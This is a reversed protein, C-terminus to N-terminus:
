GYRYPYHDLNFQETVGAGPLECWLSGGLYNERPERQFNSGLDVTISQPDLYDSSWRTSANGDVANSGTFTTGPEVSTTTVPRNLALNLVTTTVTVALTRVPGAGCSNNARVSINGSSGATTTISTSSTSGSWGSPLTWTYSTAGSVAPVSYTQSSGAAVSTNGSITGPQAPLTCGGTGYVELEFISYGWQSNRATGYIRVYRGAGSLGTLDNVTTNNGTVSGISSWNSADSSVQVQYATAYAAEWTIRVRNVTYSSGLDVYIWQPDIYNSSWRTAGNGDVANAGNFTTGTEVSSVTAPRGLALNPTTSVSVALTRTPGAGCAKNARVSITGGTTGATTTISTSTSSGSWGSPLTWTYSTAGSVAGISYTQSSGSSVTTNGGIAGPQAPLTCATKIVQDIALLLSNSGSADQALNWIM